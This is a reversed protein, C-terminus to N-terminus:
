ERIINVTANIGLTNRWEDDSATSSAPIYVTKLPCGAFVSIGM